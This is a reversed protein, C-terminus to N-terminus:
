SNRAQLDTLTMALMQVHEQLLISYLVELHTPGLQAVSLPPPPRRSRPLPLAPHRARL